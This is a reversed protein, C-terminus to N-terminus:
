NNKRSYDTARKKFMIGVISILWGFLAVRQISMYMWLVDNIQPVLLAIQPWVVIIAYALTSKLDRKSLQFRKSDMNKM